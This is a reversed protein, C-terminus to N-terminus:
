APARYLTYSLEGGPGPITGDVIEGVDPGPPRMASSAEVFARATDPDMTEPPPLDLMAMMEMVAAVDPQVRRIVGDNCTTDAGSKLRFGLYARHVGEDCAIRYEGVGGIYPLFVRPKGPVKAGMYWSNAAPYLTIDACDNVHQTWGAEAMATHEVATSLAARLAR